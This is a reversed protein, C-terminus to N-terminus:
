GEGGGLALDYIRDLTLLDTIPKGGSGVISFVGAGTELTLLADGARGAVVGAGLLREAGIPGYSRGELMFYVQWGRLRRLVWTEHTVLATTSGHSSLADLLRLRRSPDLGELPEDLLINRAGSAVALVSTYIKRQGGSLEWLKHRALMDRDLGMSEMLSLAQDLDGGMLDMYLSALRLADIPLLRYIDELNSAVLGPSGYISGMDRGEVLIRGGLIEALGLISKILTTKGSGNPGLILTGGDVVMDVGRLVPRGGYGAELGEAVIL